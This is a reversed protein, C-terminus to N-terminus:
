VTDLIAPLRIMDDFVLLAGAAELMQAYGRGAHGGGAFGLARMGAARAARIGAASDEVVACAAPAHGMQAAAYLFLDPAPKGHEVQSASFIHPAFRDWLGTAGLTVEMKAFSGSSAICRPLSLRDLMEPVGPVPKLHARFAEEDRYHLRAVFDYPITLGLETQLKHMVADLSIGTFREVAEAATMAYGMDSVMEAMVRSAIPESDVIVGDCDFIVLAPPPPTM